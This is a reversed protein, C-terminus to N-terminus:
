TRVARDAVGKAIEACALYALVIVLITLTLGTPVPVFGFITAIPSVVLVLAAALACLSTAILVPHPRSMWAPGHTRIIFIVLIQTAISEAFWGTRFLDPPTAFVFVLIAFTALDFLSSLSGM